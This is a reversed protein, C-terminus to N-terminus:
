TLFRSASSQWARGVRPHRLEAGFVDISLGHESGVIDPALKIRGACLSCGMKTVRQLEAAFVEIGSGGANETAGARVGVAGVACDASACVARDSVM